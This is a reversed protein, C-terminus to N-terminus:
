TSPVEEYIERFELGSLISVEKPQEPNVILYDGPQGLVSAAQHRATDIKVTNELCKAYIFKKKRLICSKAYPLLDLVVGHRKMYISPLYEATLEFHIGLPQYDKEFQQQLLYNVEGGPEILLCSDKAVVFDFDRKLTRVMVEMGEPLLEAARVYGYELQKKQYCHMGATSIDLTEPVIVEFGDYYQIFRTQLFKSIDGSLRKLNWEPIFGGAKQRHGGGSGFEATLYIVLENAQVEPICSRLSLKIGYPLRCYVLCIDIVDVQRMLDSILGLINPDCPKTQVIAFRYTGNYEYSRLAEAVIEMEEMSLNSNKLQYILDERVVVCDRLDKDMPHSIEAFCNTDMYLGYYLATALNENENVPYRERRLLQWVLASCSGYKSRIERYAAPFGMDIHHDIIGIVDAEFQQVNGEGYQCDVTVLLPVKPWTEAHIIPISLERIMYLLNAKRIIEKGGYILSVQKRREKLYCYVGFGSALADADPSDHCQIVIEDYLELDRLRM